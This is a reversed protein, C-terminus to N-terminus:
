KKKQNRKNSKSQNSKLRDLKFTVSELSKTINTLASLIDILTSDNEKSQQQQKSTQPMINIDSSNAIPAYSVALTDTKAPKQQIQPLASVKISYARKKQKKTLLVIKETQRIHKVVTLM